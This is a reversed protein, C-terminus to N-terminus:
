PIYFDRKILFDYGSSILAWFPQVISGLDGLVEPAAPPLLLKRATIHDKRIIDFASTVARLDLSLHSDLPPLPACYASGTHVLSQTGEWTM